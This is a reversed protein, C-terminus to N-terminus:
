PREIALVRGGLYIYERSLSIGAVAFQVTAAGGATTVTISASGPSADPSIVFTATVAGSSSVVDSISVGAYNTTLSAGELNWGTLTVSVQEGQRAGAPNIGTIVPPPPHVLLDVNTEVWGTNGESFTNRIHAWTTVGIWTLADTCIHAQGNIDLAPWSTVYQLEGYNLRYAVDLTMAAGNPVTVV